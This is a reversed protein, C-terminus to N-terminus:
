LSLNEIIIIVLVVVVVVFISDTSKRKDEQHIRARNIIIRPGPHATIVVAKSIQESGSTNKKYDFRRALTKKREVTL